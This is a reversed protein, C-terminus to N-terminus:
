KALFNYDLFIKLEYLTLDPLRPKRNKGSRIMRSNSQCPPSLWIFDYEKYNKLLYEIADSTIITRLQKRDSIVKAIKHDLEVHTIDNNIDDWLESEGGIGAYLILIKM